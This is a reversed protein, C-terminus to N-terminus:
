CCDTSLIHIYVFHSVWVTIIDKGLATFTRVTDAQSLSPGRHGSAQRLSEGAQLREYLQLIFQAGPTEGEEASMGHTQLAALLEHVDPVQLGEDRPRKRSRGGSSRRREESRRGM